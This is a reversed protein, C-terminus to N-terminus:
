MLRLVVKIARKTSCKSWIVSDLHDEAEERLGFGHFNLGKRKLLM